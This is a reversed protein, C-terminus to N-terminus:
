VIKPTTTCNLENFPLPKKLWIFQLDQLAQPFQSKWLTHSRNSGKPEIDNTFCATGASRLLFGNCHNVQPYCVGGGNCVPSHCSATKISEQATKFFM